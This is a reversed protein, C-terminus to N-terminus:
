SSAPGAFPSAPSSRDASAARATLKWTWLAAFVGIFAGFVVDSPYHATVIVRSAGILVALTIFVTRLRRYLLSLGTLISFARLTHGSPSSNSEWESSFFSLGYLEHDFLMVPRHRGLFYKLGEGVIVAIACSLCIFLLNKTWQKQLLPDVAVILIFALALALKIYAGTALCSITTGLDFVWTDAFTANVWSDIAQDCFLYLLLYVVAAIAAAAATTRRLDHM